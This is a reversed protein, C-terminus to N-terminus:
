HSLLCCKPFHGLLAKTLGGFVWEQFRSHAYGGAVVLEAGRQEAALLLEASVSGERLLRTEGAAAVGHRSLYDVVDGVAGKADDQDSATDCIELVLVSTARKLLPLADAVARRAERSDKWAVIVHATDLHSLGPPVVLVPRGARMLVDGPDMHRSPRSSVSEPRRGVVLLDAARSERAFVKVPNDIAHRWSFRQDPTAAIARFQQEAADLQKMIDKEEITLLAAVVIPGALPATVPPTLDRAAVGILLAGFQRALGAALAIRSRSDEDVDEGADAEVILTAYTM